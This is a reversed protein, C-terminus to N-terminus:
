TGVDATYRRHQRGWAGALVGEYVAVIEPGVVPDDHLVQTLPTTISGPVIGNVRIGHKALEPAMARTLGMVAAKSSSYAPWDAGCTTLGTPSGANIISGGNGARKM